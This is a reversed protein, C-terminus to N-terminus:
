TDDTDTDDTDTDKVGEEEVVVAIRRRPLLFPADAEPSNDDEDNDDEDNDNDITGRKTGSKGMINILRGISAMSSTCVRPQTVLAAVVVAVAVAAAAAEAAAGM